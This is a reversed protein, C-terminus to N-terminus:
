LKHTSVPYNSFAAESSFSTTTTLRSVKGGHKRNNRLRKNNHQKKKCPRANAQRARLQDNSKKNPRDRFKSTQNQLTFCKKKNREILKQRYASHETSTSDLLSDWKFIRKPKPALHIKKRIEVDARSWLFCSLKEESTHTLNVPFKPTEIHLTKLTKQSKFILIPLVTWAQRGLPAYNHIFNVTDALQCLGQSRQSKRIDSILDLNSTMCTKLEIVYCIRTEGCSTLMVCDAIRNGLSVEFFLRTKARLPCPHSISLFKFISASVTYKALKKYTELHAKNGAIKRKNPLHALVEKDRQKIVSLM